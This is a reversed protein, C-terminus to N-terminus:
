RPPSWVCAKRRGGQQHKLVGRLHLADFNAPDVALVSDYISEAEAFRGNQHLALAQQISHATQPTPATAQKGM